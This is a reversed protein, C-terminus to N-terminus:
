RGRLGVVLAVPKEGQKWKSRLEFGGNFAVSQFTGGLIPDPHRKLADRGTLRVDVAASLLARHLEIAAQQGRIREMSSFIATFVPNRAQRTTEKKWEKTFSELPLDLMKVLSTYSPRTAEAWRLVGDATGGSRELFARGEAPWDHGKSGLDCIQCVFALLNLLGDRDPTAKVTRVLWDLFSKEEIPMATAPRGGAPLADLRAKLDKISNPDLRPLYQATLMISKREIDYGSLVTGLDGGQSLHRALTTVAVVDDVALAGQGEEFRLRARLCGMGALPRVTHLHPVRTYVGDEYDVGWDCRQQAAGRKMMGLAYESSAVLKRASEDLPRSLCETWLPGEENEALRPLTGFAQMYKLAANAGLDNPADALATESSITLVMMALGLIRLM